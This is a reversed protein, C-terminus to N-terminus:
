PVLFHRIRAFLVGEFCPVLHKPIIRQRLTNNFAKTSKHASPNRQLKEKEKAKERELDQIKKEKEKERGRNRETDREICIKVTKIGEM